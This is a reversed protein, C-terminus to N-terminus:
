DHSEARGREPASSGAPLAPRLGLPDVRLPRGTPVHVTPRDASSAVADAVTSKGSGPPGGLLTLCGPRAVVAVDQSSLDPSRM